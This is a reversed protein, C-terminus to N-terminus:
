MIKKSVMIRGSHLLVGENIISMGWRTSGISLCSLDIRAVARLLVLVGRGLGHDRTRDRSARAMAAPKADGHVHLDFLSTDPPRLEVSQHAFRV